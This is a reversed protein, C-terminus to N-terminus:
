SPKNPKCLDMIKAYNACNKREREGFLVKSAAGLSSMREVSFKKM